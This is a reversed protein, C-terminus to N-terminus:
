LGDQPGTLVACRPTTTGQSVGVATGEEETEKLYAFGGGLLANIKQM